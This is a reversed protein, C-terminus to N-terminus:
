TSTRVQVVRAIIPMVTPSLREPLGGEHVSGPLAGTEAMRSRDPTFPHWLTRLQLLRLLIPDPRCM